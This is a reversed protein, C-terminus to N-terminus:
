PLSCIKRGTYVEKFTLIISALLLIPVVQGFSLQNEDGDMMSKSTVRDCFIGKLGFAFWIIDYYFSITMSGLVASIALYSRIAISVLLRLSLLCLQAGRIRWFGQNSFGRICDKSTQDIASLKDRPAQLLYQDVVRTDFLRWIATVYHMLLAVIYPYTVSFDRQPLDFLCQAPCSGNAGWLPDSALAIAVLMMIMMCNVLCVRWNRLTPREQLYCKLISLSTMHTNSYWALNVVISFHYVSISCHKLFGLHNHLSCESLPLPLLIVYRGDIHSYWLSTSLRKDLPCAKGFRTEM